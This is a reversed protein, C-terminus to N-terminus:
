YVCDELTLKGQGHRLGDKVQGEYSSGDTWRYIGQGELRNHKFEGEYVIGNAWEFRGQGHLMGDLFEGKYSNGNKFKVKGPGSLCKGYLQGEGSSTQLQGEWDAYLVKTLEIPLMMRLFIYSIPM